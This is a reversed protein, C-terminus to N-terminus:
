RTGLNYLSLSLNRITVTSDLLFRRHMDDQSAEPTNAVAPRKYLHLDDPPKGSVSVFREPTRGLIWMRVQKIRSVMVSDGTWTEQWNVFGDLSGDNDFDGNYQFQLNEIDKALPYHVGNHTMYLVGPEGIYGNEGKTLGSYSGTVDLWYEKVNIFAVLGGDYDNSSPCSGKLGQPPNFEKALGHSFNLKENTGTQSHTVHTIQRLEGSRCASEPNPLILVVKDEYYSDPYPFKELSYDDLSLNAAAGQYNAINLNLPDEMNGIVKLRDPTVEGGQDENDEGELFYGSFEGPLGVGANRVDRSIFYMSSRVDQQLEALQQQDVSVQNSESYIYLTALIIVLMLASGIILEILTFGKRPTM